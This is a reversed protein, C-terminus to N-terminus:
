KINSTFKESLRKFMDLLSRASACFEQYNSMSRNMKQAKMDTQLQIDKVRNSLVDMLRETEQSTYKYNGNKIESITDVKGDNSLQLVEDLLAKLEENANADFSGNNKAANIKERLSNLKKLLETRKQFEESDNKIDEKMKDQVVLMTEYLLKIENMDPCPDSSSLISTVHNLIETHSTYTINDAMYDEM